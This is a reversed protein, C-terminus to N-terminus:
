EFGCLRTPLLYTEHIRFAAYIGPEVQIWSDPSCRHLRDMVHYESAAINLWSQFQNLTLKSMVDYGSRHNSRCCRCCPYRFLRFPLSPCCPHPPAAPTPLPLQPLLPLLPLSPLSCAQCPCSLCCGASQLM